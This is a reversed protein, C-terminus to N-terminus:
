QHVILRTLASWIICEHEKRARGDRVIQEARDNIKQAADRDREKELERLTSKMFALMHETMQRCQDATPEKLQAAVPFAATMCLPLLICAAVRLSFATM